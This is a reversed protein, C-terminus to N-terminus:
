IAPRTKCDGILFGWATSNRVIMSRKNIRKDSGSQPQCTQSQGQGRSDAVNTVYDQYDETLPEKAELTWYPTRTIKRAEQSVTAFPSSRLRTAVGKMTMSVKLAIHGHRM